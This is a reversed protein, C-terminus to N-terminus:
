VPQVAGVELWGISTIWSTPNLSCCTARWNPLDNNSPQMRNRWLSRWCFFCVCVEPCSLMYYIWVCKFRFIDIYQWLDLHTYIIHTPKFMFINIYIYMHLGSMLGVKNSSERKGGWSDVLWLTWTWSGEMAGVKTKGACRSIIEGWDVKFGLGTSEM